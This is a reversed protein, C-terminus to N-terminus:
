VGEVEWRRGFESFLHNPLLGSRRPCPPSSQKGFGPGGVDVVRFDSLILDRFGMAERLM